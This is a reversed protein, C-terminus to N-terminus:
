KKKPPMICKTSFIKERDIKKNECDWCKNGKSGLTFSGMIADNCYACKPYKYIDIKLENCLKWFDKEDGYFCYFIEGHQDAKDAYSMDIQFAFGMDPESRKKNPIILGIINDMKGCIGDPNEESEMYCNHRDVLLPIEIILNNEKKYIKENM